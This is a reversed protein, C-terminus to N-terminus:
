GGGFWRCWGVGLPSLVSGGGVVQVFGGAWGLVDGCVVVGGVLGPLLCVCFWVWWLLFPSVGSYCGNGAPGVVGPFVSFGAGSRYPAATPAFKALGPVTLVVRAAGRGDVPIATM